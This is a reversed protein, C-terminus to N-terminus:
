VEIAGVMKRADVIEDFREGTIKGSAIAAARLTTGEVHAKHAIAAAADYSPSAGATSSPGRSASSACRRAPM